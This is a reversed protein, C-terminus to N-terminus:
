AALDDHGGAARHQARQFTGEDVLPEHVMPRSMVWQELPLSRSGRCDTLEGDETQGVEGDRSRGTWLKTWMRSWCSPCTKVEPRWGRHGRYLHTTM